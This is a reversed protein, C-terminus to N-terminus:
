RRRRNRLELKVIFRRAIKVEGDRRQVIVFDSKGDDIVTGRLRRIGQEPDQWVVADEDDSYSGDMGACM